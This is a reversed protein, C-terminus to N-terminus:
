GARNKHAGEQLFPQKQQRDLGPQAGQWWVGTLDPVQSIAVQVFFVSQAAVWIWGISRIIKQNM